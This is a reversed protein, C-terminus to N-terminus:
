AYEWHLGAVTKYRKPHRLLASVSSLNKNYARAADSATPYIVGTEICRVPIGKGRRGTAFDHGLTDRAHINNEHPTCWELNKVCNNTKDGDIHNVDSKNEPNPIFAQAVLRHVLRLHEKKNRCLVVGKYGHLNSLSRLRPSKGYFYSRVRGLNSVEYKGNFDPIQKWVEQM